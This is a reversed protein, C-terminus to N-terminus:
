RGEGEILGQEWLSVVVDMQQNHKKKADTCVQNWLNLKNEKLEENGRILEVARLAYQKNLVATCYEGAPVGKVLGGECLGLFTSRPCGKERSSASHPFVEQAAIDWAQRPNDTGGSHLLGVATVAVQGYKGM